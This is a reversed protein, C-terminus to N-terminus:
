VDLNRHTDSWSSSSQSGEWESRLKMEAKCSRGSPRVAVYSLIYLLIVWREVLCLTRASLINLQVTQALRGSLNSSSFSATATSSSSTEQSLLFIEASVSSFRKRWTQPFKTTKWSLSLVTRRAWWETPFNKSCCLFSRGCVSAWIPWIQKVYKPNASKSVWTIGTLFFCSM